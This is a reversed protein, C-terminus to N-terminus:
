NKEGLVRELSKMVQDLLKIGRYSYACALANGKEKTSM